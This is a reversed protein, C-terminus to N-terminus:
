TSMSSVTFIAENATLSIFMWDFRVTLVTTNESSYNGGTLRYYSVLSMLNTYQNSQINIESVAFSAINVTEDFTLMIVERNMNIDYSVLMPSTSDATFSTVQRANNTSVEVVRNGIMDLVTNATLSLYTTSKSTAVNFLLKIANMDYSGIEVTIVAVNESRTLTFNPSKGPTLTHHDSMAGASGQLRIESM